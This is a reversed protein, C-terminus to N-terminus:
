GDRTRDVEIVAAGHVRGDRLDALAREADALPYPTVSTRVPV